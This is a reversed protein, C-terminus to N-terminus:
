RTIPLRRRFVLVVAGYGASGALGAALLSVLDRLAHSHLHLGM